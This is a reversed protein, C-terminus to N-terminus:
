ITVNSPTYGEYKINVFNYIVDAPTYGEYKINVFNYIVDAPTYGDYKKGLVWQEYVTFSVADGVHANEAQEVGQYTYGVGEENVYGGYRRGNVTHFWLASDDVLAKEFDYYVWLKKSPEEPYPAGQIGVEQVHVTEKLRREVKDAKVINYADIAHVTEQLQRVVRTAKEVNVADAVHATEEMGMEAGKYEALEATEVNYTDAVHATEELSREVRDAVEATYADSVHATEELIREVLDAIEAAYTDTAHITEQLTRIVRSMPTFSIKDRVRTYYLVSVVWRNRIIYVRLNGVIRLFLKGLLKKVLRLGVRESV